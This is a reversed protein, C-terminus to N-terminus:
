NLPIQKISGSSMSNLSVMFFARFFNSTGCSDVEGNIASLMVICPSIQQPVFFPRYKHTTSVRANMLSMLSIIFIANSLLPETQQTMVVKRVLSNRDELCHFIRVCFGCNVFVPLELFQWCPIHCVLALLLSPAVSFPVFLPVFLEHKCRQHVQTVEVRTPASFGFICLDRRAKM